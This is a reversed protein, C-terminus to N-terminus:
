QPPPPGQFSECGIRLWISSLVYKGSCSSPWRARVIDNPAVQPVAASFKPKCEPTAALGYRIFLGFATTLAAIAILSKVIAGIQGRTAVESLSPKRSDTRTM